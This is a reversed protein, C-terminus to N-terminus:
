EVAIDPTVRKKVQLVPTSSTEPCYIAHNQRVHNIPGVRAGCIDDVLEEEEDRECEERKEGDRKLAPAAREGCLLTTM